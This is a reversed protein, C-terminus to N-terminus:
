FGELTNVSLSGARGLNEKFAQSEGWWGRAAAWGRLFTGPSPSPHVPRRHHRLMENAHRSGQLVIMLFRFKIM